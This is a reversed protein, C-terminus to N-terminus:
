FFGGATADAIDTLMALVSPWRPTNMTGEVRDFAMVCGRDAGRRLDIFLHKGGVDGAIPLWAPLWPEICPTGAPMQMQEAVYRDFFDDPVPFASRRASILMRRAELAVAIPYPDFRPPILFGHRLGRNVGNSLRWWTKVDDPLPMGMEREASAIEEESAPPNIMNLMHPAERALRDTIQRWAEEVDTVNAV